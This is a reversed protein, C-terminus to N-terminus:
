VNKVEELIQKKEAATIKYRGVQPGKSKRCDICFKQSKKERNFIRGCRTCFRSTNFSRHSQAKQKNTKGQIGM